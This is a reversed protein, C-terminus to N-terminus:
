RTVEHEMREILERLKDNDVDEPIPNPGAPERSGYGPTYPLASFADTETQQAASPFAASKEEGLELLNQGKALAYADELSQARGQQIIESVVKRNKPTDKFDKHTSLFNQTQIQQQGQYLQVVMNALQNIAAHPNYGYTSEWGYNIAEVPNKQVAFRQAFQEYDFKKQNAEQNTNSTQQATNARQALQEMIEQQTGYIVEGNPLRYEVVQPEEPQKEKGESGTQLKALLEKLQEENM